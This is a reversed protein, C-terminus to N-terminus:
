TLYGDEVSVALEVEGDKTGQRPRVILASSYSYFPKFKDVRSTVM